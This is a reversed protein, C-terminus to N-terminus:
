KKDVDIYDVNDKNNRSEVVKYVVKDVNFKNSKLYERLKLARLLAFEREKQASQRKSAFTSIVLETVKNEDAMKVMSDIAIKDVDSLSFIDKEYTIRLLNKDSKKAALKPMWVDKEDGLVLINKQKKVLGEKLDNNQTSENQKEVAAGVANEIKEIDNIVSDLSKIEMVEMKQDGVGNIDGAQEEVYSFPDEYPENDPPQQTYPQQLPPEVQGVAQPPTQVPNQLSRRISDISSDSSHQMSAPVQALVSFSILSIIITVILFHM